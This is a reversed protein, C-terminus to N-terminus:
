KKFSKVARGTTTDYCCVETGCDCQCTGEPCKEGCFYTVMPCSSNTKQYVVNSDKTVKFLCQNPRRNDFNTFRFYSWDPNSAPDFSYRDLTSDYYIPFEGEITDQLMAGSGSTYSKGDFIKVWVPAGSPVSGGHCLLEIVRWGSPYSCAFDQTPDCPLPAVEHDTVRYMYIPAYVTAFKRTADIGSDWSRRAISSCSRHVGPVGGCARTKDTRNFGGYSTKMYSINYEWRYRTYQSYVPTLSYDDAEIIRNKQEGTYQWEITPKIGASCLPM